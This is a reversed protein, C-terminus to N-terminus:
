LMKEVVQLQIIQELRANGPSVVLAAEIAALGLYMGATDANEALAAMIYFRAARSGPEDRRAALDDLLEQSPNIFADGIPDVGMMIGNFRARGIIQEALSFM